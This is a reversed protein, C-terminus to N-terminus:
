SYRRPRRTSSAWIGVKSSTRSRAPPRAPPRADSRFAALATRASRSARQDDNVGANDHSRECVVAIVAVSRALPQVPFTQDSRVEDVQLNRGRPPTQGCCAIEVVPTCLQRELIQARETKVAHRVTREDRSAPLQALVERDIVGRVDRHGLNHIEHEDTRVSTEGPRVPRTAIDLQNCSDHVLLRSAAIRHGFEVPAGFLLSTLRLEWVRQSGDRSCGRGGGDARTRQRGRIARSRCMNNATTRRWGGSGGEWASFAPGIGTVRETVDSWTLPKIPRRDGTRASRREPHTQTCNAARSRYAADVSSRTRASLCQAIRARAPRPCM